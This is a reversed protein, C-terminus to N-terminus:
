SAEILYGKAYKPSFLFIFLSPVPVLVLDACSNAMLRTMKRRLRAEQWDKIGKYIKGRYFAELRHLGAGMGATENRYVAGMDRLVKAERPKGLIAKDGEQSAARHSADEDM